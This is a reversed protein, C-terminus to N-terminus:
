RWVIHTLRNWPIFIDDVESIVLNVGFASRKRIELKPMRDEYEGHNWLEVGDSTGLSVGMDPLTPYEQIGGFGDLPSSLDLTQDPSVKEIIQFVPLRNWPYFVFERASRFTYGFASLEAIRIVSTPNVHYQNPRERSFMVSKRLIPQAVSIYDGPYFPWSEGRLTLCDMAVLVNQPDIM